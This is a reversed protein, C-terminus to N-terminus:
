VATLFARPRAMLRYPAQSDSCQQSFCVQTWQSPLIMPVQGKRRRYTTTRANPFFTYIGAIFHDTKFGWFTLTHLDFLAM